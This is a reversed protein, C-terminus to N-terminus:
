ECPKPPSYQYCDSSPRHEYYLQCLKSEICCYEHPLYDESFYQHYYFLPNYQLYSGGSRPGIILSGDSDYCCETTGQLQSFIFTACNPRSSVGWFYGFWFRWDLLAQQHTCPCLIRSPIYNYFNTHEYSWTRCLRYPNTAESSTFNFYWEGNIGTNGEVDVLHQSPLNIRVYNIFDRADYGITVHRGSMLNTNWNTDNYLFYGYTHVYDTALVLQFTM